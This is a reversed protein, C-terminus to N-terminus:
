SSPCGPWHNGLVDVVCVSYSSESSEAGFGCDTRCNLGQRNRLGSWVTADVTGSKHTVYWYDVSELSNASLIQKDCTATVLGRELIVEERVNEPMVGIDDGLQELGLLCFDFEGNRSPDREIRVVGRHVRPFSLEGLRVSWSFFEAPIIRVDIPINDRWEAFFSSCFSASIGKALLLCRAGLSVCKEYVEGLGNEDVIQDYAFCVVDGKSAHFGDEKSLKFGLSHLLSQMNSDFNADQYHSMRVMAQSSRGGLMRKWSTHVARSSLDVGLWCRDLAQAVELTTGSGCFFDAVLDGPQSTSLIIRELLKRPKQTPYFVRESSTRGVMDIDWVDRMSVMTYWGLEDEFEEVGKFRYPKLGRNYSKEKLGFFVSHKSKSYLFITDHKRAFRTKTAGGSKYTWIIENQFNEAGFVEDLMLRFHANTRWDCHLFMWGDDALIEHILLLRERMMDLYTQGSRRGWRDSYAHERWSIKGAPGRGGLVEVRMSFDIGVDFPPDIYVVKIGGCKRLRDRLWDSRLIALNDGKILSNTWVRSSQLFCEEIKFADTSDFIDPFRSTTEFIPSPSIM